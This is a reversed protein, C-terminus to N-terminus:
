DFVREIADILFPSYGELDLNVGAEPSVLGFLATPTLVNVTANDAPAQRIPLLLSLTAEGSGDSNVDATVQNLQRNTNGLPSTVDFSIYDGDLLIATSTPLGDVDLTLGTQSGGAVLPNSGVYGTSPGSYHPPAYAFRNALSTLQNTARVWLRLNAGRRPIVSIQTVWRRNPLSTIQTVGATTVLPTDARRLNFVEADVPVDPLEPLTIIMM